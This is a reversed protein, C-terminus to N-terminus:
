PRRPFEQHQENDHDDPRRQQLAGPNRPDDAQQESAERDPRMTEIQDARAVRRHGLQTLDSQQIQHEHGPDFEVQGQHPHVPARDHRERQDREDTRHQQTRHDPERHTPVRRRGEQEARQKGRM